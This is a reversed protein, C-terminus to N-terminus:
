MLSFDEVEPIHVVENMEAIQRTNVVRGVIPPFERRYRAVDFVSLVQQAALKRSYKWLESTEGTEKEMYTEMVIPGLSEAIRAIADMTTIDSDADVLSCLEYLSIGDDLDDHRAYDELLEIATERLRKGLKRGKALRSRHLARDTETEVYWLHNGSAKVKMGSDVTFVFMDEPIHEEYGRKVRVPQNEPGVLIDGPEVDGIRKTSKRM